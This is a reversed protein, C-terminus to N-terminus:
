VGFLRATALPWRSDFACVTTQTISAASGLVTLNDLKFSSNQDGAM